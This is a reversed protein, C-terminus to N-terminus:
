DDPANKSGCTIANASADRKLNILTHLARYFDRKVSTRYRLIREMSSTLRLEMVPGGNEDGLYEPLLSSGSNSKGAKFVLERGEWGSLDTTGAIDPGRVGSVGSAADDNDRSMLKYLMQASTNPQSRINRLEREAVQSKWWCTALEQQMIDQIARPFDDQISDLLENFEREEEKNEFTIARALLGHKVANNRVADINKPGTSCKANRRNAAIVKDTVSKKIV